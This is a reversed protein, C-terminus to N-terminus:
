RALAERLGTLEIGFEGRIHMILWSFLFDQLVNTNTHLLSKIPLSPWCSFRKIVGCSLPQHRRANVGRGGNIFFNFPQRMSDSIRAM